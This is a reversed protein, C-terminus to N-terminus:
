SACPLMGSKEALPVIPHVATPVSHVASGFPGCGTLCSGACLYTGLLTPPCGVNRIASMLLGFRVWNALSERFFVLSSTSAPFGIHDREDRQQAVPTGPKMMVGACGINM